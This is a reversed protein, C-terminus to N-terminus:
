DPEHERLWLAKPIGFEPSVTRGAYRLVPANSASIRRAQLHARQDMWMLAPRLPQGAADVALVTSSPAALALAAVQAAEVDAQVLCNPVAQCLADWWSQAHQEAWTPRPFSTKLPRGAISLARGASTFLGARLSQTGVDVGLFLPESM